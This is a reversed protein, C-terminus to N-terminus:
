HINELTDPDFETLSSDPEYKEEDPITGFVKKDYIITDLFVVEKRFVDWILSRTEPDIDVNFFDLADPNFEGDPLEIEYEVYFSDYDDCNGVEAYCKDNDNVSGKLLNIVFSEEDEDETKMREWEKSYTSPCNSSFKISDAYNKVKLFDEEYLGEVNKDKLADILYFVSYRPKLEFKSDKYIVEGDEDIVKLYAWIESPVVIFDHSQGRVKGDLVENGLRILEVIKTSNITFTLRVKKVNEVKNENLTGKNEEIDPTLYWYEWDRWICTLSGNQAKDLQEKKYIRQYKEFLHKPANFACGKMHRLSELEESLCIIGVQEIKGIRKVTKPVILYNVHQFSNDGIEELYPPLIVLRNMEFGFMFNDPIKKLHVCKSMDLLKLNEMSGIPEIRELSTPLVLIDLGSGAFAADGIEKISCPLNLKRLSGTGVFAFDGIKELGAPLTVEELATWDYFMSQPIEKLDTCESLDVIRCDEKYNEYKAKDLCCIESGLKLIEM